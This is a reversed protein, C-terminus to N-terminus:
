ATCFASTACRLAAPRRTIPQFIPRVDLAICAASFMSMGSLPTRISSMSNSLPAVTGRPRKMWGRTSASIAKTM